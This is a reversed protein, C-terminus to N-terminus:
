LRHHLDAIVLGLLNFFDNVRGPYCQPDLAELLFLIKDRSVHLDSPIIRLLFCTPVVSPPNAFGDLLDM